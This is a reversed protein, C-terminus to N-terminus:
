LIRKFIHDRMVQKEASYVKFTIESGSKGSKKGKGKGHKKGEGKNLARARPAPPPSTSFYLDVAYKVAKKVKPDDCTVKRYGGVVQCSVSYLTTLIFVYHILQTTM